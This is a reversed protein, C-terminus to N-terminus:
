EAAESSQPLAPTPERDWHVVSDWDLRRGARVMLVAFAGLMINSQTFDGQLQQKVTAPMRGTLAGFEDLPLPRGLAIQMRRKSGKYGMPPDAPVEPIDGTTRACLAWRWLEPTPEFWEARIAWKRFWCQVFRERFYGGSIAGIEVLDFPLTAQIVKLRNRPEYSSGIKIPGGHVAQAFYVSCNRGHRM